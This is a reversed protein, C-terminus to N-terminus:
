DKHTHLPQSQSSLFGLKAPKCVLFPHWGPEYVEQLILTLNDVITHAM